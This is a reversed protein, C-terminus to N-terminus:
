EHLTDLIGEIDVYENVLCMAAGIRDADDPTIKFVKQRLTAAVTYTDKECVIAPLGSRVLLGMVSADPRLGGTFVLGSVPPKPGNSLIHASLIALINDSRDGPTIVLTRDKLYAVMHNAEMAGIITAGVRNGLSDRGCIVEGGLESCVQGVTPSALIDEFPVTGFSRIGLNTLGQTAAEKVRRYKEPWVKNVVAGIMEAGNAALYSGCLAIEDIASGIGGPGILLPCAGLIRAVHAASMGLCAGAAVHGMGEILLLDHDTRLKRCVAAVKEALEPVRLDFVEKEVCGRTLALAMEASRTDMDMARTVVLADDHIPAGEIQKARRGLPKTYAVNLGRQRLSSILGLCFTTKGVNRMTGVVYLPRM